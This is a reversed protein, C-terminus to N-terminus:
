RNETNEFWFRDGDRIRTFQDIIITRFLEGPGNPTTEAMGGVFVDINSLNGYLRQLKVLM